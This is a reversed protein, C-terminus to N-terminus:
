RSGHDFTIPRVKFTARYPHQVNGIKQFRIHDRMKCPKQVLFRAILLDM